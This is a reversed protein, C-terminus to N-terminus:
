SQGEILALIDKTADGIRYLNPESAYEDLVGSIKISLGKMATIQGCRMAAIATKALDEASTCMVTGNWFMANEIAKAVREVLEPRPEDHVVNEIGQVREPSINVSQAHLREAEHQHREADHQHHHEKMLDLATAAEQCLEGIPLEASIFPQRTPLRLFAKTPVAKLRVILDDLSESATM